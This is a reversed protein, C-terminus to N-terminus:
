KSKTRSLRRYGTILVLVTSLGLLFIFLMVGIGGIPTSYIRGTHVELAWQWLSFPQENIESPLPCFSTKSWGGAQKKDYSM